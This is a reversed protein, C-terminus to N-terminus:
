TAVPPHSRVPPSCPQQSAPPRAPLPARPRRCQILSSNMANQRTDPDFAVKIGIEFFTGQQLQEVVAAQDTTGAREIATALVCLGTFSIAEYSDVQRM